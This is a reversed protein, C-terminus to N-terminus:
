FPGLGFLILDLDLRPPKELLLGTQKDLREGLCGFGVFGGLGGEFELRM